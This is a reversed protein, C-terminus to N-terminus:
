ALGEQIAYHTLEANTKLKLKDLIRARYTSITPIGLSLNSAIETITKGSAILCLVQFERDSINNLIPKNLDSEINEALLEAVKQSIYKKGSLIKKIAAILEERGSEKTLYGAAGSKMVRIAYLEERQMTLVLIPLKIGEHQLQRLIDLGNKGPLTIDLIILDWKKSKILKIGQTENEADQIDADTFESKLILKIGERVILHDDIILISIM